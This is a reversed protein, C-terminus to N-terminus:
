LGTSNNNKNNINKRITKLISFFHLEIQYNSLSFIKDPSIENQVDFSIHIAIKCWQKDDQHMMM